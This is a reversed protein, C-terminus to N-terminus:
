QASGTKGKINTYVDDLSSACPLNNEALGNLPEKPNESSSFRQQGQRSVLAQTGAEAGCLCHQSRNYHIGKSKLQEHPAVREVEM